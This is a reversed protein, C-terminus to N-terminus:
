ALLPQNQLLQCQDTTATENFPGIQPNLKLLSQNLLMRECAYIDEVTDIEYWREKAFLISEFNLTGDAIMESFVTEYYENVRGSTIFQDLRKAVRDWTQRAFSYINVTKYTKHNTNGSFDSSNFATVNHPKGQDVTITSGNMWPLIHSVGIRDPYLMNELLSPAFILDSELLLFPAQIKNRAMWLSYINNTTRYKPSVIYEVTLNGVIKDLFQRISEELYGVVVILRRFNHLHLSHVLHALIEKDNVKTLCKPMNNTLPQLRNGIGAALLLATTIPEARKTQHM